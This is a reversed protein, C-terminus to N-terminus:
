QLYLLNLSIGFNSQSYEAKVEKIFLRYALYRGSMVGSLMSRIVEKLNKVRSESTYVNFNIIRM